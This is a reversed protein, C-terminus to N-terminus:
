LSRDKKEQIWQIVDIEIEFDTEPLTAIYQWKFDQYFRLAAHRDTHILLIALALQAPGSGGYSWNFGDPSHDIVSQSRTPKLEEGNIWVKRTEWEGKIKM